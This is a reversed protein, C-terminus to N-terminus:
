YRALPYWSSTRAGGGAVLVVRLNQGCWSNFWSVAAIELCDSVSVSASSGGGM